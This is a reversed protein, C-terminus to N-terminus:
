LHLESGTNSHSHHLGVPAAGIRGRAQSGGYASPVARFFFVFFSKFFYYPWAPPFLGACGRLCRTARLPCKAEEHGFVMSEWLQNRMLIVLPTNQCVHETTGGLLNNAMTQSQVWSVTNKLLQGSPMPQPCLLQRLEPQWLLYVM